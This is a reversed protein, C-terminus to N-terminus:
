TAQTGRGQPLEAVSRGGAVESAESGDPADGVNHNLMCVIKRSIARVEVLQDGKLLPHLEYMRLGLHSLTAVQGRTEFRWEEKAARVAEQLEGIASAMSTSPGGWTKEVHLAAKVIADKQEDTMQKELRTLPRQATLPDPLRLRVRPRM